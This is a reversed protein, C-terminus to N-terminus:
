DSLLTNRVWKRLRVMVQRDLELQVVGCFKGIQRVTSFYKKPIVSNPRYVGCRVASVAQSMYSSPM